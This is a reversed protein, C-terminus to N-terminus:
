PPARSRHLGPLRWERGDAAPCPGEPCASGSARPHRRRPTMSGVWRAAPPALRRVSSRVEGQCPGLVVRDREALLLCARAPGAQRPKLPQPLLHEEHSAHSRGRRRLLHGLPAEPTFPASSSPQGTARASCSSSSARWLPSRTRSAAARVSRPMTEMFSPSRFFDTAWRSFARASARWSPSRPRSTSTSWLM